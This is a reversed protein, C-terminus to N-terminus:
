LPYLKEDEDKVIFAEPDRGMDMVPNNSYNIMAQICACCDSYEEKSHWHLVTM